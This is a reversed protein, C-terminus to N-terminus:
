EPDQKVEEGPANQKRAGGEPGKPVEQSSQDSSCVMDWSPVCEM